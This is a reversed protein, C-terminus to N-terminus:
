PHTQCEQILAQSKRFHTRGTLQAEALPQAGVHVRRSGQHLPVPIVEVWRLGAKGLFLAVRDSPQAGEGLWHKIRDTNLVLRQAHDTPLLPNYTGLKEIFKGDRAARSDAVVIKYSPLHRRGGRAMRIKLAM